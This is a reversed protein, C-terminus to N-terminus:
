KWSMTQASNLRGLTSSTTFEDARPWITADNSLEVPSAADAPVIAMVQFFTSEVTGYSNVAIWKGDPSWSPYSEEKAGTTIQRVGTGDINMVWVHKNVIFAVKSGDPSVAPHMPQSLNPDIRVAQTFDKDILYLGEQRPTNTPGASAVSVTGAVVMGGDPRWSPDFLSDISMVINGSRDVIVTGDNAALDPTFGRPYYTFAISNGDPSAKPHMYAVNYEPKIVPTKSAGSASAITIEDGKYLDYNVYLIEGSKMVDPEGGDFLLTAKSTGANYQYLEGGPTGYYVTGSPSGNGGGNNNNTPTSDNCGSVLLVILALAALLNM